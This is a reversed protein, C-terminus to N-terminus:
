TRATTPRSTPAARWARSISCRPRRATPRRGSTTAAPSHGPVGAADGQRRQRQRARRLDPLGQDPRLRGAQRDQPRHGQDLHGQRRVPRGQPVPRELPRLHLQLRQPRRHTVIKRDEGNVKTDILIHTGTEDYDRNDNPTYQFYWEMKGNAVDFAIASDPSSITAPVIARRRLGAGSQGLGLLDPQHRPRLLRHRLLRRRRDALCQEQGELDRQRARRAGPHSYTKWKLNGTKPDLSSSGTACAATAAPPASSSRTRSRSRRRRSFMSEPQDRLNKDWVIKGTEKDTAIVRGDSSPSRSSSITGSRSAATATTAEGPRSGDELRHPRPTGSRVDIKYVVGWHDVMYMFGDDVLPTAELAENGALHRRARGRVSADHEQREVQQDDDLPSYRQASFDHHNMLWNHPEPNLLREYTVDAAHVPSTSALLACAFAALAATSKMTM